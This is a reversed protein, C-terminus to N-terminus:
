LLPRVLETAETRSLAGRHIARIVGDRDIVATYPLSAPVNGFREALTFASEGGILVPDSVEHEAVFRQTAGREDLAIGIVQLGRDGLERQVTMLAPIEELCPPCWTAWFNLLIVRGGFEALSRRNGELDPLEMDPHRTGLVNPRDVGARATGGEGQQARQQWQDVLIGAVLGLAGTAVVLLWARHRM